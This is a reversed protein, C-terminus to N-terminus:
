AQAAGRQVSCGSISCLARVALDAYALQARRCICCAASHTVAHCPAANARLLISFPPGGSLRVRCWRIILTVVRFTISYFASSAATARVLQGTSSSSSRADADSVTYASSHITDADRPCTNESYRDEVNELTCNGCDLCRSLQERPLKQPNQSNCVSYRSPLVSSDSANERAHWRWARTTSAANYHRLVSSSQQKPNSASSKM